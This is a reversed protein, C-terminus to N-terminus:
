VNNLAGTSKWKEKLATMAKEFLEEDVASCSLLFCPKTHGEIPQAAKIGVGIAAAQAILEESTAASSVEMRILFGGSGPIAKAETKFVKTIAQCLAQSKMMYLKRAKKIQKKLHGDRIFQCLAIQEATSATQNYLTGKERYVKMLEAPLVMFGIRLSPLLLRSFSGMYIVKQGGDLSQLSPVPRTYYRFESDFDDEIILCDEQRAYSLLDIRMKMPMVQGWSTMHSPSVYLMEVEKEKLFSLDDEIKGCYYTKFQRDEFVARGQRFGNGTFCISKREGTLACLVNLLSQVGAGIIIQEPSCVVGRAEKVYERIAVRLDLEGQAEGYALLRETNRLASKMYRRWLDFNFSKDDVTSSIFDYKPKEKHVGVSLPLHRRMRDVKEYGVANVYYGSGAVAQIYGEACLQMYGAEVTTKSVQRLLACQRISPMKEGAKLSGQMILAKYYEYLQLYLPEGQSAIGSEM